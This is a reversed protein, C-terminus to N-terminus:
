LCKVLLSSKFDSLHRNEVRSTVVLTKLKHRCLFPPPSTPRLCTPGLVSQLLRRVQEYVETKIKLTGFTTSPPVSLPPSNRSPTTFPLRDTGGRRLLSSIDRPVPGSVDRSHVYSLTNPTDDVENDSDRWKVSCNEIVGLIGQPTHLLTTELVSQFSSKSLKNTDVTM